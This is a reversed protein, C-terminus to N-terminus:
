RVGRDMRTRTARDIVPGRLRAVRAELAQLRGLLSVQIEPSTTSDPIARLESVSLLRPYAADAVGPGESDALEPFQTCGALAACIAFRTLKM